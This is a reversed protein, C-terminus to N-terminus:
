CIGGSLGVVELLGMDLGSGQGATVHWLDGEELLLNGLRVRTKCGLLDRVCGVHVELLVHEVRAPLIREVGGCAYRSRLGVRAQRRGAQLLALHAGAALADGGSRVLLCGHEGLCVTLRATRAWTDAGRTLAGGHQLALVIRLHPLLHHLLALEAEASARCLCLLRGARGERVGCEGGGRAAGHVLGGGRRLAVGGACRGPRGASGPGHARGAAGGGRRLWRGRRPLLRLRLSCWLLLLMLCRRRCRCRRLGGARVLLRLRRPRVRTRARACARARAALPPHPPARAGPPPVSTYLCNARVLSRRLCEALRRTEAGGQGNARGGPRAGERVHRTGRATETGDGGVGREWQGPKTVVATTLGCARTQSVRARLCASPCAPCTARRPCPPMCPTPQAATTLLHVNPADVRRPRNRLANGSPLQVVQWSVGGLWVFGLRRLIGVDGFDEVSAGRLVFGSLHSRNRM